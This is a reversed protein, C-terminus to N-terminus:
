RGLMMSSSMNRSREDNSLTGDQDIDVTLLNITDKFSDRYKSRFYDSKLIFFDDEQIAQSMFLLELCYYLMAQKIRFLNYIYDQPLVSDSFSDLLHKFNSYIKTEFDTYTQQIKALVLEADFYVTDMLKPDYKGLENRTIFSITYDYNETISIQEKVTIQTDTNSIIQFEIDNIILVWGRYYDTKFAKTNDTITFESYATTSGITEDFLL